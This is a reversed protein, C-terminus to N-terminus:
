RVMVFGGDVSITQGTIFRSADSALFVNVDAADEAKGLWGGLPVMMQFWAKVGELAQKSMEDFTQQAMPTMVFPAVANVRISHRGWDRAVNRTWGLIAGKAAGYVPLGPFGVIGALSAYNIISGGRDKLARFAAANTFATGKFHVNFIFDIHEETVDEAPVGKEVGALNALVDLGGLRSVAQDFVKNVEDQRSVDCRMYTIPGPGLKAAEAAVEAGAADQIDTVVLAAGERAFALVTSKGIGRAGGTLIIRKGKLQM